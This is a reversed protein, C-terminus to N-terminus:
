ILKGVHVRVGSTCVDVLMNYVCYTCQMCMCFTESVTATKIYYVIRECFSFVRKIHQSGAWNVDQRILEDDVLLGVFESRESFGSM